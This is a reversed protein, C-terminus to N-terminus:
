VTRGVPAKENKAVCFMGLFPVLNRHHIMRIVVNESDAANTMSVQNIHATFHYKLWCQLM